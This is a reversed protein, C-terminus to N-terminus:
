RSEPILASCTARIGCHASHLSRQSGSSSSRQRADVRIILKDKEARVARLALEAVVLRWTRGPGGAGVDRSRSELPAVDQMFRQWV